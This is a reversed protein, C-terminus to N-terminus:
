TASIVVMQRVYRATHGNFHRGQNRKGAIKTARSGTRRSVDTGQHAGTYWVPFDEMIRVEGPASSHWSIFAATSCPPCRPCAAPHATRHRLRQPHPNGGYAPTLCTQNFRHHFRGFVEKVCVIAHRRGQRSVRRHLHTNNTRISAKKLRFAYDAPAYPQWIDTEHLAPSAKEQWLYFAAISGEKPQRGTRAILYRLRNNTM